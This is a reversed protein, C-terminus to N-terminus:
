VVSKRDLNYSPLNLGQKLNIFERMSFGTLNYSSVIGNLDKNEERLRMVSSGTFVIQLDPYLDICRRLESSWEPYKFVQDLLLVKGGAKVFNGAFEVLTCTTFYFQNLNIYLCERNLSGYKERAYDLLFTTKGVGRPGKIGILRDSWDIEDMLARRLSPNYNRVLYDHTRYFIDM